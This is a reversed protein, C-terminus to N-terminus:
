MLKLRDTSLPINIFPAHPLDESDEESNKLLLHAFTWSTQSLGNTEVRQSLSWFFYTDIEGVSDLSQFVPM